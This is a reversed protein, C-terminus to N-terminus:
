SFAKDDEITNLVLNQDREIHIDIDHKDILRYLTARTVDLLRAAEPINQGTCRLTYLVVSKETEDKAEKLTQIGPRVERRELGLDKPFIQDKESMIVARKIRNSLERINGPWSYSRLAALADRSFKKERLDNQRMFEVAFYSALIDIDEQRERLPPIHLRLVNLRHYLDDRFMKQDIAQELNVHTAAIIRVDVSIISRGGVRVITSDQLFRLLNAQQNLPLDGIEDLFLTGGNAQEIKGITKEHAGTFAGKEHGFLESQILQDPFAGCNVAIFPNNKRLSKEHITLAFVEKGTGTEGTILVPADAIAMRDVLRLLHQTEKSTGFKMMWVGIANKNNEFFRTIEKTRIRDHIIV